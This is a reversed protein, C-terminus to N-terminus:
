RLSTINPTCIQARNRQLKSMRGAPYHVRLVKIQLPWQRELVSREFSMKGKRICSSCTQICEISEVSQKLQEEGTTASPLNHVGVSM